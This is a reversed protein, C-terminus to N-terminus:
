NHRGHYSLPMEYQHGETGMARPACCHSQCFTKGVLGLMQKGKQDQYIKWEIDIANAV